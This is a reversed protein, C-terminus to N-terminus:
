IIRILPEEKKFNLVVGIIKLLVLLSRKGKFLTSGFYQRSLSTFDHLCCLTTACYYLEIKGPSLILSVNVSLLQPTATLLLSLFIAHLRSQMTMCNLCFMDTQAETFFYAWMANWNTVPSSITSLLKKRESKMFLETGPLLYAYPLLKNILMMMKTETILTDLNSPAGNRGGSARRTPQKEIYDIFERADTVSIRVPNDDVHGKNTALYSLTGARNKM